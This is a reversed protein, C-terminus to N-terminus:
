WGRIDFGEIDGLVDVSNEIDPIPRIGNLWDRARQVDEPNSTIYCTINNM